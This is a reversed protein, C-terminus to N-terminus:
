VVNTSIYLGKLLLLAKNLIIVKLNEVGYFGVYSYLHPVRQQRSIKLKICTWATMAKLPNEELVQTFHVVAVIGPNHKKKYNDCSIM